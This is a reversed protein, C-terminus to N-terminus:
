REGKNEDLNQRGDVLKKLVADARAMRAKVVLEKCTHGGNICDRGRERDRGGRERERRRPRGM